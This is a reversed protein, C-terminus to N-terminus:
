KGLLKDKLAQWLPVPAKGHGDPVLWYYFAQYRRTIWTQNRVTWIAKKLWVSPIPRPIKGLIVQNYLGGWEAQGLTAAWAQRTLSVGERWQVGSTKQDLVVFNNLLSLKSMEREERSGHPPLPIAHRQLANIWLYQESTWTWVPWQGPLVPNELEEPRVSYLPVNWLRRLDETRGFHCIDSPHFPRSPDRDAQITVANWTVIRDEFIQWEKAFERYQGFAETFTRSTLLLDTRFKLCYPRKVVALGAQTSLLLRNLNGAKPARTAILGPDDNLLLIDFDLDKVDADRWTSLILEAGPLWRRVSALCRVTFPEAGGLIPGQVVVSIESADINM